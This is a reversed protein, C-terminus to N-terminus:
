ESAENTSVFSLLYNLDQECEKWSMDAAPKRAIILVTLETSFGQKKARLYARVRRKIKNRTVAKGVKKSVVIGAQFGESNSQYLLVFFNGVVRDNQSYIKQFEKKTKLWKM